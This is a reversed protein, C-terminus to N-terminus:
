SGSSTAQGDYKILLFVPEIIPVEVQYAFSTTLREGNKTITLDDPGITKISYEIEKQKAFANRVETPTTPGSKMIQNVSRKITLYENVSPFARIGMLAFFGIVIAVVVLSIVTMGRQSARRPPHALSPIHPM